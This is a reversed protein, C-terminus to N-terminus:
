DWIYNSNLHDNIEVISRSLNEALKCLHTDGSANSQNVAESLANFGVIIQYFPTRFSDIKNGTKCVIHGDCFLFVSEPKFVETVMKIDELAADLSPYSEQGMKHFSGPASKIKIEYTKM